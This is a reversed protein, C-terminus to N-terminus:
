PLGLEKIVRAVQEDVTQWGVLKVKDIARADLWALHSPLSRGEETGTDYDAAWTLFREDVRGFRATERERLRELRVLTPVQLFVILDFADEVERGWNMVSGAMVVTGPAALAERALELREDADRRARYPPDTPLWYLDDAEVAAGGLRQALAAALTSTGSGAAGTVLLRLPKV